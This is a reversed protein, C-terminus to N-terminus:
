ALLVRKFTIMKQVALQHLTELVPTIHDCHRAWCLDVPQWKADSGSCNQPFDEFIMLKNRKNIRLKTQTHYRSICEKLSSHGLISPSNQSKEPSSVTNRLRRHNLSPLPLSSSLFILLIPLPFSLPPLLIPLAYAKPKLGEGSCCIRAVDRYM